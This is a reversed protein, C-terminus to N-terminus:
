LTRLGRCTEIRGMREGDQEREKEREKERDRETQSTYPEPAVRKAPPHVSAKCLERGLLYVQPLEPTSSLRSRADAVRQAFAVGV